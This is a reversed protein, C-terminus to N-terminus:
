EESASSQNESMIGEVLSGVSDKDEAKSRRRMAAVAKGTGSVLLSQVVVEFGGENRWASLTILIFAVLLVLCLVAWGVALAIQLRSLGLGSASNELFIQVMKEWGDAFEKEDIKGSCDIDCYRHYRSPHAPSTLQQPATRAHSAGRGLRTGDYAFLQEKQEEKLDLELLEFLRQFEEMSMVDDGDQNLAMFVDVPTVQM